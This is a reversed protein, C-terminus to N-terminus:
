GATIVFSIVTDTPAPKIQKILLDFNPSTQAKPGIITGLMTYKGKKAILVTSGVSDITNVESWGNDEFSKKAGGAIKEYDDSSLYVVRIVNGEAYSVEDVRRAGSYVPVDKESVQIPPVSDTPTAEPPSIQPTALAPALETSSVLATAGTKTPAVTPTLKPPVPTPTATAIAFSPSVSTIGNSNLAVLWLVIALVALVLVVLAIGARTNM